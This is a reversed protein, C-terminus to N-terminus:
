FTCPDSPHMSSCVLFIRSIVLVCKPDNGTALYHVKLLAKRNSRLLLWLLLVTHLQKCPGNIQVPEDKLCCAGTSVMCPAITEDVRALCCPLSMQHVASDYRSVM